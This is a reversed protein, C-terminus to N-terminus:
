YVQRITTQGDGAIALFRKTWEVAEDKDRCDLLAWGGILEKAETFPGDVVTFKGDAYTVRTAEDLSGLGGTALLVGAKTAEEIFAGMEAMLEASPPPVAASPDGMTYGLFRMTTDRRSTGDAGPSRGPRGPSTRNVPGPAKKGM